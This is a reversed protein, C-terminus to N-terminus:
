FGSPRPVPVPVAAPMSVTWTRIARSEITGAPGLYSPHGPLGMPYMADRTREYAAAADTCLRTRMDEPPTGTDNPLDSLTKGVPQLEGAFAQTFFQAARENRERDTTAGLMVVMVQRGGQEALAVINRGSACIFGTKMGMSGPYRALLENHSDVVKGDIVVRSVKFFRQHEPFRRAVEIGLIALDRASSRQERDFLGNPNVFHSGTMGLRRAADNMMQVFSQESGAVTEAVAVAVDNASGAIVAFLADELTMASGVRLDANLFGQSMANQSLVVTSDMAIRGAQLSEFVVFATMLKTTSAPYWLHGADESHLVQRTEVDVVLAPTADASVGTLFLASLALAFRRARFQM